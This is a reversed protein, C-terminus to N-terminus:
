KKWLSINVNTKFLFLTLPSAQSTDLSCEFVIPCRLPSRAWINEHCLVHTIGKCQFINTSCINDLDKYHTRISEIESAEERTNSPIPIDIILQLIDPQLTSLHVEVTVTVTIIQQSMLNNLTFIKSYIHRVPTSTNDSTGFWPDSGCAQFGRLLLPRHTHICHKVTCNQIMLMIKKRLLSLTWDSNGLAACLLPKKCKKFYANVTYKYKPWLRYINIMSKVSTFPRM